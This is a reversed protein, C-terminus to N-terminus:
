DHRTEHARLHTYSVTQPVPELQAEVQAAADVEDHLDLGGVRQAGLGLVRELAQLVLAALAAHRDHRRARGVARAEREPEVLLRVGRLELIEHCADERRVRPGDVLAAALPPNRVLVGLPDRDLVLRRALGDLRDAVADVGETDGLGDDLPLSGVADDDLDGAHVVRAADLLDDARRAEELQLEHVVAATRVRGHVDSSPRVATRHGLIELDDLAEVLVGVGARASGDPVDQLAGGGDRPAVQLVGSDVAVLEVLRGDHEEQVRRAGHLERLDRALVDVLAERDHEVLANLGRRVDVTLDLLAADDLAVERGLLGVGEREDEARAREWGLHDDELLARDPRREPEVRDLFADEGRDHAHDTDEERHNEIVAEGAHIRDEGEDQVREDEEPRHRVDVRRERQRADRTEDERDAHRDVRVDEDEFADALLHVVALSRLGRDVEAELAGPARDDVRVDRRDGGGEEQELEARPGDLAEGDGEDDAKEGRDEGRDEHRVEEEVQDVTRLLADLGEGDSRREM